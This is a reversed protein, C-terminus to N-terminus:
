PDEEVAMGDGTSNTAGSDGRTKVITIVLFVLALAILSWNPLRLMSGAWALAFYRPTRGVILSALDESTLKNGAQTKLEDAM